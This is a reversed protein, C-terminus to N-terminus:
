NNKGQNENNKGKKLRKEGLITDLERHYEKIERKCQKILEGRLWILQKLEKERDKM